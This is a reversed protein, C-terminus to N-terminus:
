PVASGNREGGMEALKGGTELDGSVLGGIAIAAPHLPTHARFGWDSSGALMASATYLYSAEDSRPGPSFPVWAARLLLGVVFIALLIRHHRSM